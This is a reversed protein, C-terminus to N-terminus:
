RYEKLNQKNKLKNLAKKLIQSVRSETLKKKKGIQALSMGGWYYLYIVEKAEKNGICKFVAEAFECLFMQRDLDISVDEIQYAIPELPVLTKTNKGSVKIEKNVIYYQRGSMKRFFDVVLFKWPRPGVTMWQEVAYSPFEDILEQVTTHRRIVRNATDMVSAYGAGKDHFSSM